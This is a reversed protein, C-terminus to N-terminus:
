GEKKVSMTAISRTSQSARPLGEPLSEQGELELVEYLSWLPVQSPSPSQSPIRWSGWAPVGTEM